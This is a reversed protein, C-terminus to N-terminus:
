NCGDFNGKKIIAMENVLFGNGSDVVRKIELTDGYRCDSIDPLESEAGEISVALSFPSCFGVCDSCDNESCTWTFKPSGTESFWIVRQLCYVDDLSIKLWSNGNSDAGTSSRTKLNMDLAHSAVDDSIITASHEM